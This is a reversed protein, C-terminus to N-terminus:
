NNSRNQSNRPTHWSCKTARQQQYFAMLVYQLADEASAHNVLFYVTANSSQDGASLVLSASKALPEQIWSKLLWWALSSHLLSTHSFYLYLSQDPAADLSRAEFPYIPWSETQKTEVSGQSLDSSPLWSQPPRSLKGAM